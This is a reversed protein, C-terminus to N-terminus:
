ESVPVFLFYDLAPMAESLATVKITNEGAKVSVQGIVGENFGWTTNPVVADTLSVEADNLELKMIGDLAYDEGSNYASTPARAVLKMTMNSAATAEFKITLVADVPFANTAQGSPSGSSPARFTVVDGESTGTEVEVKIEGAVTKASVSVNLRLSKMGQKFITIKASGKAVATVLGTESVTIISENTSVFSLGEIASAIQLTDEVELALTEYNGDADPAPNTLVINQAEGSSVVAITTENEAYINLDDLYPASALFSLELVNNGAVLNVEGLSFELFTNTDGGGAFALGTLDIAADNFKVNMVTGMDEVASRSAMTLVLEAKTAASSTFTLTEKDGETLYAICTGDSANGESREYIPSDGPGYEATGYYTTAWWGDVAYHAADEMHLTATADPRVVSIAQSGSNLHEGSATITAEGVKVATVLGTESVTAISADSSAWTVGQKDANLQVTEGVLLSTKGDTAVSVKITEYDVSISISGDKYGEKSAKISASGKSVSTVLGNADVSAIEPKNSSWTVGDVSATLQVTEGFILKNKGEAATITIKEQTAPTTDSQKGSEDGGGQEGSNGCAVLGMSLALTFAALPILLKRGKM